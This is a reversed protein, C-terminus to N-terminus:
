ADFFVKNKFKEILLSKLKDPNKDEFNHIECHLYEIKDLIDPRKEFLHYFIEFEGGEIDMKLYKVKEIKLVHSDFVEEISILRSLFDTSHSNPQLGDVCSCTIDTKNSFCHIQKNNISIGFNFPEINLLRNKIIGFKLCTVAIPNVDFSLVRITPNTAALFISLVGVNCGIDLVVDNTQFVIKSINWKDEKLCSLGGYITNEGSPSYYFIDNNGVTIKHELIKM